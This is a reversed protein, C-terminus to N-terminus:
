EAAEVARPLRELDRRWERVDHGRLSAVRHANEKEIAIAIPLLRASTSPSNPLARTSSRSYRECSRNRVTQILFM